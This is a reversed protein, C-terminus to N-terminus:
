LELLQEQKADSVKHLQILEQQQTVSERQLQLIEEQKAHCDEKLQKIEDHLDIFMQMMKEQNAGMKDQKFDSTQQLQFVRAMLVNLDQKQVPGDFERTKESVLKVIRQFSLTTEAPTEIPSPSGLPLTSSGALSIRAGADDVTTETSVAAVRLDEVSKHDSSPNVPYSAGAETRYVASTDNVGVTSAMRPCEMASDVRLHNTTSSPFVKLVRDSLHKIFCPVPADDNMVCRVAPFVQEISEWYVVNQGDLHQIPIDVIETAGLLQFSQTESM